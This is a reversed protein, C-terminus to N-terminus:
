ATYHTSSGTGRRYWRLLRQPSVGLRYGAVVVQNIWTTRWVGLQQWRRPSTIADAEVIEIRGRRRLRRVMEYDEM